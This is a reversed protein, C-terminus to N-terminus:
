DGPVDGENATCYLHHHTNLRYSGEKTARSLLSRTPHAMFARTSEDSETALPLDTQREHNRGGDYGGIM